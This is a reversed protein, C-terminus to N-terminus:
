EYIVNLGKTREVHFLEGGYILNIYGCNPFSESPLTSFLTFGLYALFVRTIAGHNVLLVTKNPYKKSIDQLCNKM